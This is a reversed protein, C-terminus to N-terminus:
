ISRIVRAPNGAAIVGSPIDSTVVSGAGITSGSGITVGKLVISQTGIFVDNGIDIPATEGRAPDEARVVPDIPHFDTDTITCNAGIAVRDGITIRSSAVISGGTMGFDDGIQISAGADRTSLVVAHFPALPNSRATSRLSAKDGISITSERHKQVIPSGFLKWGSGWTVGAKRFRIWNIPILPLRLAHNYLKWPTQRASIM